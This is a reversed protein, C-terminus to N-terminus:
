KLIAKQFRDFSKEDEKLREEKMMKLPEKEFPLMDGNRFNEVAPMWIPVKETRLGLESRITNFALDEWAMLDAWESNDVANQSLLKSSPVKSNLLDRKTKDFGGDMLRNNILDFEAASVKRYVLRFEKSDHRYPLLSSPFPGNKRLIAEISKAQPIIAQYDMLASGLNSVKEKHESVVVAFSNDDVQKIEIDKSYVAGNREANIEIEDLFNAAAEHIVNNM